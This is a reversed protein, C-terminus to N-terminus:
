PVLNLGGTVANMMIWLTPAVSGVAPGIGNWHRLTAYVALGNAAPGALTATWLRLRPYPGGPLGLVVGSNMCSSCLLAPLRAGIQSRYESFIRFPDRAIDYADDSFLITVM